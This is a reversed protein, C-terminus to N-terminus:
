RGSDQTPTAHFSMLQINWISASYLTLLTLMDLSFIPSEVNMNVSLKRLILEESVGPAFKGQSTM